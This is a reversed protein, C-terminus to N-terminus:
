LYRWFFTNIQKNSVRVSTSRKIRWRSDSLSSGSMRRSMQTRLEIQYIRCKLM